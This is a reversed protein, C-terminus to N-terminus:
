TLIKLLRLDNEFVQREEEPLEALMTKLDNKKLIFNIKGHHFEMFKESQFNRGGDLILDAVELMLNEIPTFFSFELQEYAYGLENENCEWYKPGKAAETTITYIKHRCYTHYNELLRWLILRYPMRHDDPWDDKFIDQMM